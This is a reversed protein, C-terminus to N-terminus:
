REQAYYSSAPNIETLFIIDKYKDKYTRLLLCIKELRREFTRVNSYAAFWVGGNLLIASFDTRSDLIKFMREPEIDYLHNQVFHLPATTGNDTTYYMHRGKSLFFM